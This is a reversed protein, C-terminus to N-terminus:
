RERLSLSKVMIKKERREERKIGERVIKMERGMM